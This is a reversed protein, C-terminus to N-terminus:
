QRDDEAEKQMQLGAGILGLPNEVVQLSLGRSIACDAVCWNLFEDLTGEFGYVSKNYYFWILTGLDLKVKHVSEFIGGGIIMKKDKKPTEKEADTNIEPEAIEPPAPTLSPTLPKKAVEETTQQWPKKEPKDLPPIKAEPLKDMNNQEIDILIKDVAEQMKFGAINRPKEEETKEEHKIPEERKHGPENKEIIIRAAELVSDRAKLPNIPINTHAMEAAALEEDTPIIAGAVLAHHLSNVQSPSVGFQAAIGKEDYDDGTQADDGRQPIGVTGMNEKILPHQEIVRAIKARLQNWDGKLHKRQYKEFKDM